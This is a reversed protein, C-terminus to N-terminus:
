ASAVAKAIGIRPARRDAGYDFVCYFYRMFAYGAVWTKRSHGLIRLKCTDGNQITYITAPLNLTTSGDLTFTLDPFSKVSDCAVTGDSDAGLAKHVAAKHEQPMSLLSSGGAYLWLVRHM